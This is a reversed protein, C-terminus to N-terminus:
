WYLGVEVFLSGAGVQVRCASPTDDVDALAKNGAVFLSALGWVWLHTRLPKGDGCHLQDTYLAAYLPRQQATLSPRRRRAHLCGPQCVDQRSPLWIETSLAAHHPAVTSATTSHCSHPLKSFSHM